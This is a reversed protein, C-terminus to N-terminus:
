DRSITRGYEDVETEVPTHVARGDSMWVTKWSRIIRIPSSRTSKVANATRVASSTSTVPATPTEPMVAGTTVTTWGTQNSSQPNTKSSSGCAGLLLVAMISVVLRSCTIRM